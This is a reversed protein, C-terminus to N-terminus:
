SQRWRTVTESQQRWGHNGLEIEVFTDWEDQYKAILARTAAERAAKIPPRNAM